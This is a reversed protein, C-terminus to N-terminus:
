RFGELRREISDLREAVTDFGGSPQLGLEHQVADIGAALDDLGELRAELKALEHIMQRWNVPQGFGTTAAVAQELTRFYAGEPAGAMIARFRDAAQRDLEYLRDTTKDRMLKKIKVRILEM